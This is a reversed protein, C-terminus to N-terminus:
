ENSWYFLPIVTEVVEETNIFIQQNTPIEQNSIDQEQNQTEQQILKNNLSLTTFLAEQSGMFALKFTRIGGQVKVLQVDSVASLKELFRNVEVFKSLTDIAGVEILIENSSDTSLAYKASLKDTVNIIAKNLLEAENEGKLENGIEIQNTKADFMYWDLTKLATTRSNVFSTMRVIVIKEPAYRESAKNIPGKFRGWLDSTEINQADTLDMLPLATPLGNEEQAKTVLAQLPSDTTESIITRSIGNDNVIWFLVLPRLNGWLPINHDIFLQKIKNKDFRAVLKNIGNEKSFNFQTMYRSHKQLEKQIFPNTLLQRNGAVKVLVKEMAIRIANDKDTHSQSLLETKAQYLDTIETASSFSSYFLVIFVIWYRFM